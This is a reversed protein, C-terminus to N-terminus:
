IQLQLTKQHQKKDVTDGFLLTIGYIPVKLEKSYCLAYFKYTLKECNIFTTVFEDQETLDNRFLSSYRNKEKSAVKTAIGTLTNDTESLHAHHKGFYKSPDTKMLGLVIVLVCFAVAAWLIFKFLKKIFNMTKGTYTASRYGYKGDSRMTFQAITDLM